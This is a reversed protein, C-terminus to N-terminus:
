SKGYSVAIVWYTEFCPSEPLGQDSIRGLPDYGYVRSSYMGHFIFVTKNLKTNNHNTLLTDPNLFHIYKYERPIKM